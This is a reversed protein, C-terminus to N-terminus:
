LSTTPSTPQPTIDGGYMCKAPYRFLNQTAQHNIFNQLRKGITERALQTNEQEKVNNLFLLRRFPNAPRNRNDYEMISNPDNPRREYAFFDTKAARKMTADSNRFLNAIPSLYPPELGKKRETITLVDGSVLAITYLITKVSSALRDVDFNAKKANPSLDQTAVRKLKIVQQTPRPAPKTEPPKSEALADRQPADYRADVAQQLSAQQVPEHLSMNNQLNGLESDNPKSNSVVPPDTSAVTGTGKNSSDLQAPQKSDENEADSGGKGDEAPPSDSFNDLEYDSDQTLQYHTNSVRQSPLGDDDDDEGLRVPSDRNQKEEQTQMRTKM